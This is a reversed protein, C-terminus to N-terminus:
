KEFLGRATFVGQKKNTFLEKISEGNLGKWTKNNTKKLPDFQYKQQYYKNKKENLSLYLIVNEYKEFGPRGYHNYAIFDITDTKLENFVEQIVKYKCSYAYDMIYPVSEFVEGFVTDKVTETNNENPDFATVSIKKGIFAYLNVSKDELKFEPNNKQGTSKCSFVM